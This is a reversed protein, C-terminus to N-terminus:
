PPSQIPYLTTVEIFEILLVSRYLLPLFVTLAGPGQIALVFSEIELPYLLYPLGLMVAGLLLGSVYCCLLLPLVTHFPFPLSSPADSPSQSLVFTVACSMYVNLTLGIRLFLRM